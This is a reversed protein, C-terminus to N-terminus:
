DDHRFSVPVRQRLWAVPVIISDAYSCSPIGVLTLMLLGLNKASSLRM